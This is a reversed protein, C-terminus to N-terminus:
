KKMGRRYLPAFTELTYRLHKASIRMAHHELIADPHQLWPEYSLLDALCEGINEASLLTLTSEEGQVRRYRHPITFPGFIERISEPQEQKEYKGVAQVVDRQYGVRERRIKELLYQVAELLVDSDAKRKKKEGALIRKRMKKLQAIQVDADRAEGLSRTIARTGSFAKRYRKRPLCSRYTRLAARLRRSAVRMRHLHESDAGARVGEIEGRYADLLPLIRQAAFRCVIEPALDRSWPSGCTDPPRREPLRGPDEECSSPQGPIRPMGIFVPFSSISTRKGRGSLRM